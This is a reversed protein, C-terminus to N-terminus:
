GRDIVSGSVAIPALELTGLRSLPTTEADRGVHRTEGAESKEIGLVHLRDFRKRCQQSINSAAREAGIVQRESWARNDLEVLVCLDEYDALRGAALNM